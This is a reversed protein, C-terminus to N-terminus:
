NKDAAYVFTEFERFLEIIKEDGTPHIQTGFVGSVGASRDVWWYVNPLGAWTLTGRRRRGPVDELIVAGGLAHNADIGVGIGAMINNMEKISLLEKFKALAADKLQPRFLEDVTESRLLKGDDTALSKL